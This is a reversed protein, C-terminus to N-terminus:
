PLSPVGRVHRTTTHRVWRADDLLDGIGPQNVVPDHVFNYAVYGTGDPTRAVRVMLLNQPQRETAHVRSAVAAAFLDMDAVQEWPAMAWLQENEIHRALLDEPLTTTLPGLLYARMLVQQRGDPIPLTAAIFVADVWWDWRSVRRDLDDVFTRLPGDTM